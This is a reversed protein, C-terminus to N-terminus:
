SSPTQAQAVYPAGRSEDLLARWPVRPQAALFLPLAARLLRATLPPMPAWLPEERGAHWPLDPIWAIQPVSLLLPRSLARQVLPFAHGTQLGPPLAVASHDAMCLCRGATDKPERSLGARR